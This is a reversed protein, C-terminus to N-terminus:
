TETEPRRQAASFVEAVAVSFGPLLISTATASPEFRGHTRYAAGDLALVEM